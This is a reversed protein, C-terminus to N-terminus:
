VIGKDLLRDLKAEIDLIKKGVDVKEEYGYREKLIGLLSEKSRVPFDWCGKEKNYFGSLSTFMKITSKEYPVELLIRGSEERLNIVTDLYKKKEEDNRKDALKEAGNFSLDELINRNFTDYLHVYHLSMKLDNHGMIQQLKLLSEYGTGKLKFFISAFSHRFTHFTYDPHLIKEKRLDKVRNQVKAYSVPFLLDDFNLDPNEDLVEQLVTRSHKSMPIIRTEGNKTAEKFSGDTNATSVVHIVKKEMDINRYRLALIEGVRMGNYLSLIVMRRFTKYKSYKQVYTFLKSVESADLFNIKEKSAPFNKIKSLLLRTNVHFPYEKEEAFKNLSGFHAIVVKATSKKLGRLQEVLDFKPVESIPYPM